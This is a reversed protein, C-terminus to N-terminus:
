GACNGENKGKEKNYLSKYLSVQSLYTMHLTEYEDKMQEIVAKADKLPVCETDVGDITVSVVNKFENESPKM